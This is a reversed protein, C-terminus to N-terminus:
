GYIIFTADTVIWLALVLVILIALCVGILIERKHTMKEGKEVSDSLLLHLSAACRCFFSYYCTPSSQFRSITTDWGAAFLFVLSRQQNNKSIRTPEDYETYPLFVVQQLITVVLYCPSETSLPRTKGGGGCTKSM